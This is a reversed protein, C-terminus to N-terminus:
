ETEGAKRYDEYATHLDEKSGGEYWCRFYADAFEEAAQLKAEIVEAIEKSMTVGGQGNGLKLAKLMIETM